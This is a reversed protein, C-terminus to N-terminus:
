LEGKKTREDRIKVALKIYDAKDACGECKKGTKKILAKIEKMKMEALKADTYVSWDMAAAANTDSGTKLTEGWELACIQDDNKQLRKCIVDPPLGSMIPQAVQRKIPELYYCMSNRKTEDGKKNVAEKEQFKCYSSLMKEVFELKPNKTETPPPTRAPAPVPAPVTLFLCLSTASRDLAASLLRHVFVQNLVPLRRRAPPRAAAAAAVLPGLVARRAPPRASTPPLPCPRSLHPPPSRSRSRSLSLSLSFSASKRIRKSLEGVVTECVECEKAEIETVAAAPPPPRAASM